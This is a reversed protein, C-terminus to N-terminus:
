YASQDTCFKKTKDKQKKRIRVIFAERWKDPFKGTNWSQNYIQLLKRRASPRLNRIMENTIGDKGPAKKTKLKKIAANVERSTFASTMSPQPSEQRLKRKAEKRVEQIRKNSLRTTSEEHFFFDALINAAMKGAHHKGDEGLVTRCCRTGTDENLTKALNWLKSMDKEMNLQSTKEHWSKQTEVIQEQNFADKINNHRQVNETTPKKEMTERASTLGAHLKDM